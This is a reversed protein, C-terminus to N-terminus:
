NIIILQDIKDIKDFLIEIQEKINKHYKNIEEPSM